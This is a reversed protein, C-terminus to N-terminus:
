LLGLMELLAKIIVPTALMGLVSMIVVLITTATAHPIRLYHVIATRLRLVAFILSLSALMDLNLRAMARMGTMYVELLDALLWVFLVPIWVMPHGGYIACRMVHSTKLKKRKLTIGFVSLFAGSYLPWVVFPLGYAFTDFRLGGNFYIWVLMNPASGWANPWMYYVAASNALCGVFMAMLFIVSSAAYFLGLRIPRSPMVPNLSQWFRRSRYSGFATRIFSDVNSEPHHEFLYPHVRRNPDLVEEWTFHYGCEPCRPTTLGRLIYECL